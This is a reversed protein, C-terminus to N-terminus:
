ALRHTEEYIEGLTIDERWSTVFDVGYRNRLLKCLTELEMGDVASGSPYLARYVDMVRDEPLFCCRRRRRFAFADVFLELFERIETKSSDPFRRRWRFGSCAREWFPRLAKRTQIEIFAGGAIAVVAFLVVPIWKADFGFNWYAVFEAALISGAILLGVLIRIPSM